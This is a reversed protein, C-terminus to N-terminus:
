VRACCCRWLGGARVYGIFFASLAFGRAPDDWGYEEAIPVIAVSLIVRLIYVLALGSFLAVALVYRKLTLWHTASRWWRTGRPYGRPTHKVPAAAEHYARPKRSGVLPELDGGADGRTFGRATDFTSQAM